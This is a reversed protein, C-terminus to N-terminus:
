DGVNTEPLQRVLWWGQLLAFLMTLGLLGFLKFNVWTQEDFNYVVLLNLAGMLGFFIAWALNLKRWIEDDAKIKAEAMMRQILPTDGLWQSGLFAAAFLWYLITPKWQIFRSEHIILTLGGFIVVLLTSLVMIGSVRRHKFWHYAIHLASAVIIVGTAVFIDGTLKYAAFFAIIPFFDILLQMLM